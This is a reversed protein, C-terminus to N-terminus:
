LSEEYHNILFALLLKEKHEISGKTTERIQEYRAIAKQYDGANLRKCDMFDMNVEM